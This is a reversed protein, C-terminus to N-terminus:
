DVLEGELSFSKVDNIKVNVIKGILMKSGKFNVLKNHESYGSLVDSNKKSPGDVLVKLTKNFFRQNNKLFYGNVKENLIALRAKKEDEGVNDKMKAAPTGTRPSFAFTFANDFQCYDVLALTDLFAENTEEPFGVIIDTSMAVDTKAKKLKDFLIKYEEVSYRRGMKKLVGNNGSQVPLHIFPMINDYKSIVDIMEDTFDWPHSTMFRIRPINTKAVNELLKAFGYGKNLDKGYANVNQGLLTIEQYGEKILDNVEDLINEMLRSREKGRTYPVICYTCFKDCGFMINVWAKFKSARNSPLNEIVQGEESTVDVIIEKSYLADLLLSPLNNINHTGFVLDLHQYSSLIKEITKEEQAMCGCLAIVLSPNDRKLKKLSGIKGFVKNEANERIACTNFIIFDSNNEDYTREYGLLELIGSINESDRENAQCGYTQILYKKNNGYNVMENPIYIKDEIIEVDKNSRKQAKKLNPKNKIM